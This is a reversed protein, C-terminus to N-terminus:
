IRVSDAEVPKESRVPWLVLERLGGHAALRVAGFEGTEVRRGDQGAGRQVTELATPVDLFRVGPEEGEPAAVVEMFGDVERDVVQAAIRRQEVRGYAGSGVARLTWSAGEAARVLQAAGLSERATVSGGTAKRALLDRGLTVVDVEGEPVPKLSWVLMGWQLRLERGPYTRANAGTRLCQAVVDLAFERGVFASDSRHLTEARYLFRNGEPLMAAAEAAGDKPYRVFWAFGARVTGDPLVTVPLGQERLAALVERVEGASFVGQLRAYELREGVTMRYTGEPIEEPAAEQQEGAELELALAVGATTLVWVEGQREALAREELGKRTGAPIGESLRWDVDGDGREKNRVALAVLEAKMHVSLPRVTTTM